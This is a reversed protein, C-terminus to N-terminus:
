VLALNLEAPDSRRMRMLEDSFLDGLDKNLHNSATATM